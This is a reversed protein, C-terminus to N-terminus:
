YVPVHWAITAMMVAGLLFVAMHKVRAGAIFVMGFWIATIVLSTGLDPQKLILLMPVAIYVFSGVVTRFDHIVHRRLSLHNALTIILAIKAIESPQLRFPGIDIWRQAGKASAGMAMVAVLLVLNAIYIDRSRATFRNHDISSFFLFGISGLGTWMLQRVVYSAGDGKSASFIMLCGFAIISLVALLLKLDYRKILTQEIM